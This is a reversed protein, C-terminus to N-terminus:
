RNWNDKAWEINLKLGKLIDVKHSWNTIKKCFSPDCTLRQVEALRDEIHIIKSKSNSLKKIHKALFNINYDKGTGFNIVKQNARKSQGIAIFAEVADSVYTLDRSQNGSGHITIDENSLAMKIFKPVVDYTHRPGYTNFPRVVTIPM